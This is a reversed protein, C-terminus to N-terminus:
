CTKLCLFLAKSTEYKGYSLWLINAPILVLGGRSMVWINKIISRRTGRLTSLFLCFLSFVSKFAGRHKAPKLLPSNNWSLSECIEFFVPHLALRWIRSWKSSLSNQENGWTLVRCCLWWMVYGKGRAKTFEESALTGGYCLAKLM